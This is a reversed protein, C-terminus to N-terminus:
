FLTAQGSSNMRVVGNILWTDPYLSHTGMALLMGKRPYEEGFIRQMEELAAAEGKMRSWNWFTAETEWDQCTGTREGDDMRYTYKFKYPCVRHPVSEKSFLDTQARVREFRAAEDEMQSSTKKEVFFGVIEARLLALSRGAERERRLSTVIAKDLFGPRESKPLIGQIAISDQDVRRSEPRPDDRPRRWSFSIRDWRAFKKNRDLLRFSVPYLRLWRGYLDIGACCVTEGHRDGVQPSAKIIVVAETRGANETPRNPEPGM